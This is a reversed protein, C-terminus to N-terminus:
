SWEVVTCIRGSDAIQRNDQEAFVDNPWVAM